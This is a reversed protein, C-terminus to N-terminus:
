DFRMEFPRCPRPRCGQGDARDGLGASLNSRLLAKDEPRAVVLDVRGERPRDAERERRLLEGGPAELEGHQARCQGLSPGARGLGAGSGPDVELEVDRAEAPAVGMAVM